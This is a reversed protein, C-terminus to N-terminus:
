KLQRRLPWGFQNKEVLVVGAQLPETRWGAGKRGALHARSLTATRVQGYRHPSSKEDPALRVSVIHWSTDQLIIVHM